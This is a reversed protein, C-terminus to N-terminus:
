AEGEAIPDVETMLALQLLRWAKQGNHLMADDGYIEGDSELRELYELDQGEEGIGGCPLRVLEDMAREILARQLMRHLMTM